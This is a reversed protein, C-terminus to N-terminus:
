IENLAHSYSFLSLNFVYNGSYRPDNKPQNM